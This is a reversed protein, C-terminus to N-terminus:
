LFIRLHYCPWIIPTQQVDCSIHFHTTRSRSSSHIFISYVPVRNVRNEEPSIFDPVNVRAHVYM